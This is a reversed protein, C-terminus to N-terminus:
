CSTAESGECGDFDSLMLPGFGRNTRTSVVRAAPAQAFSLVLVTQARRSRRARWATYGEGDSESSRAGSGAVRRLFLARSRM